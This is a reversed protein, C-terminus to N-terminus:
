FINMLLLLPISFIIGDFRDLLGGHGPIINGTDKINIKRKLFSIFLDGIQSVFSILTAFILIKNTSYIENFFLLGIIISFIFSGLMGSYTKNPSIKTLKKGKFLKGIIFGGVDTAICISIVFIFPIKYINSIESLALWTLFVLFLLYNLTFFITIFLKLKNVKFIKNQIIYFENLMELFIFFLLVLLFIKSYYAIIFIGILLISSLLRKNIEKM